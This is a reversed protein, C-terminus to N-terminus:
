HRVARARQVAGSRVMPQSDSQYVIHLRAGNTAVARGDNLTTIPIITGTPTIRVVQKGAIAVFEAGWTTVAASTGEGLTLPVNGLLARVENGDRYVILSAAIRPSRGTAVTQVGGILDLAPSVRQLQIEGRSFEEWVAVYEDGTWALGLDLYMGTTSALLRPSDDLLVGDGSIRVARIEEGRVSWAVVFETGNSAAAAFYGSGTSMTLRHLVEGNTDLIAARRTPRAGETWTVLLREAMAAIVPPSEACGSSLDVIRDGVRVRIRRVDTLEAWATAFTNGFAVAAPDSRRSPGISVLVPAHGDVSAMVRTAGLATREIWTMVTGASSSAKSAAEAEIRFPATPTDGAGTVIRGEIGGTWSWTVLFDRGDSAIRPDKGTTSLILLGSLFNGNPDVLRAYVTGFDAWAVLFSSESAAIAAGYAMRNAGPDIGRRLVRGRTDLLILEHPDTVFLMARTRVSAMAATYVSRGISHTAVHVGENSIKAVEHNLALLFGDAVGTMAELRGDFVAVETAGDATVFSVHTTERDTYAVALRHNNAAAYTAEAFIPAPGLEVPAIPHDPSFVLTALLVLAIV